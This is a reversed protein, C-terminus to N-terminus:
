MSMNSVIPVLIMALVGVFTIGVPIILKTEANKGRLVAINKKTAWAEMSLQKMVQVLESNGKEVNQCIISAFKKLENIKCASGFDEYARVESEGNAISASARRMEIYLKRNGSEAVLSWAERLMMGANVMLAMKSLVTPYDLLLEERRLKIQDDIRMNTYIPMFVALIGVLITGIISDMLAGLLFAFPMFTMTYSIVSAKDVMCYFEVYQGTYLETFKRRKKENVNRTNLKLKEIVAFGVVLVDKLSYVEDDIGAIWTEYRAANKLYIVSYLMTTIVGLALLVLNM